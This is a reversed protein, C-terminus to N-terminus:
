RHVLFLEQVDYFAREESTLLIKKFFISKKKTWISFFDAIFSSLVFCSREHDKVFNFIGAVSVNGNNDPSLSLRCERTVAGKRLLQARQSFERIAESFLSSLYRNCHYKRLSLAAEPTGPPPSLGILFILWREDTTQRHRPTLFSYPVYNVCFSNPIPALM